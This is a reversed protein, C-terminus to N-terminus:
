QTYSYANSIYELFQKVFAQVQDETEVYLSKVFNDFVIDSCETLESKSIATNYIRTTVLFVHFHIRWKLNGTKQNFIQLM